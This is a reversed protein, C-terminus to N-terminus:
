AVTLREEAGESNEEPHKAELADLLVGLSVQRGRRVDWWRTAIESAQSWMTEADKSIQGKVEAYVDMVIALLMNLMILNVLWTFAWFWLGAQQRGVRTLEDWDYDGLMIRFVANSARGFNTFDDQEQGWLIM